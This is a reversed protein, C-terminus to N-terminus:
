DFFNAPLPIQLKKNKINGEFLPFASTFEAGNVVYLNNLRLVNREATADFIVYRIDNSKFIKGGVNIVNANDNPSHMGLDITPSTQLKIEILQNGIDPYNGDDAYSNFGLKKCIVSHLEAGRNREQSADLYNITTGVLPKLRKFIEGIPLLTSPSPNATPLTSPLIENGLRAWESVRATDSASFLINQGYHKMTAQYKHTLTGTHDLMALRSGTIVKVSFVIFNSNVGILVYRRNPNIEENWVQVNNSKQIYTDFNQGIFRPQTKKFTKPIPYGLIECIKEKVAKSRTRIPLGAVSFGVLESNLIQELDNTPIYLSDDIEDYITNGSSHILAYFAHSM